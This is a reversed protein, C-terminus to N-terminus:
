AECAPSRGLARDENRDWDRWGGPGHPHDHSWEADRPDHVVSLTGMGVHADVVLTAKDRSRDGESWGVNLGDNDWELVRLHGAGVDADAVVCVDRPVVLVAEGFGLELALERTGRTFEVGRLDVELHGAGLDYRERLDGLSAPVYVRDGYGGGLDVDAAAVLGVGTAIALAPVVLWRAGGRFAALVLLAGIAVVLVALAVGGGAAAAWV